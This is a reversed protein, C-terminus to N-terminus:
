LPWHQGHPRVKISLGFLRRKKIEHLFKFMSGADVPIAGPKKDPYAIALQDKFADRNPAIKTLDGMLPWGIGVYGTNDSSFQNLRAPHVGLTAPHCFAGRKAVELRGRFDDTQRNHHIHTIWKRKSIHFIQQVLATNINAM